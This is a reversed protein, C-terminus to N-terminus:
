IICDWKLRPGSLPRNGGVIGMEMDHGLGFCYIHVCGVEQLYFEIIDNWKRRPRSLPRKGGVNGM